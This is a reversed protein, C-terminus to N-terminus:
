SISAVVKELIELDRMLKKINDRMIENERSIAELKLDKHRLQTNLASVRKLLQDITRRESSRGPYMKAFDHHTDLAMPLASGRLTPPPLHRVHTSYELATRARSGNEMALSRQSTEM